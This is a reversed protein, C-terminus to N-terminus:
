IGKNPIKFTAIEVDHYFYNIIEDYMQGFTAMEKACWQCLGVGHGFGKGQFLINDKNINISFLLSRIKRNGLVRLLQVGKIRLIKNEKSHFIELGKVRGSDFRQSVVMKKINGVRFGKRNLVKAFRSKSIKYKWNYNPDTQGYETPSAKIFSTKGHWINVTDETHGGSNSHYFAEIIGHENKIIQGETQLVSQYAREDSVTDGKYVQDSETDSIHWKSNRRQIYHHLAYTRAIVAQTKVAEVPWNSNIEANIVGELYKETKIYNIIQYGNKSAIIRIAGDYAFKKLQIPDSSYIFASNKLKFKNNIIINGDKDM